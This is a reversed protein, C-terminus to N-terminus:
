HMYLYGHPTLTYGGTVYMCTCSTRVYDDFYCRYEREFGV